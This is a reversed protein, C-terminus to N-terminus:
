GVGAPEFPLGAHAVAHVRQYRRHYTLAQQSTM